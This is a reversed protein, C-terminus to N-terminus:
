LKCATSKAIETYDDDAKLYKIRRFSNGSLCNDSSLIKEIFENADSVDAGRINNFIFKIAGKNCSILALFLCYYTKRTIGDKFQNGPIEDFIRPHEDQYFQQLYNTENLTSLILMFRSRESKFDDDGSKEWAEALKHKYKTFLDYRGSIATAYFIYNWFTTPYRLINYPYSDGVKVDSDGYSRVGLKCFLLNPSDSFYELIGKHNFIIAFLLCNFIQGKSLNKLEDYEPTTNKLFCNINFKLYSFFFKALNEQFHEIEFQLDKLRISGIKVFILELKHFVESNIPLQLEDIKILFVAELKKSFNWGSAFREEYIKDKKYKSRYYKLDFLRQAKPMYNYSDGILPGYLFLLYAIKRALSSSEVLKQNNEFEAFAVRFKETDLPDLFNAMYTTLEIPQALIYNDLQIIAQDQM